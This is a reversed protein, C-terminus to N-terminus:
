CHQETNEQVFGVAELDGSGPQLPQQVATQSSPTGPILMNGGYPNDWAHYTSRM